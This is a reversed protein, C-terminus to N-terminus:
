EGESEGHPITIEVCLGGLPSQSISLGAREDFYIQMRKHINRLATTQGVKSGQEILARIPELASRDLDGSNEVRIVLEEGNERFSVSLIGATDTPVKEFVYQFANELLPQLILRPVPTHTWRVPLEAFEISVRNKFRFSQISAYNRAHAVEEALTKEDEGDRTIYEYFKGLHECFVVSNEYDRMKIMRYLLYYSNYMFHPNIQAQLHKLQAHSILLQQKLDKEILFDIQGVMENFSDYLEAFYTQEHHIIRYKFNGSRVQEFADELLLKLPHYVRRYSDLFGSLVILAILAIFLLLLTLGIGILVQNSNDVYLWLLRTGLVESESRIVDFKKDALKVHQGSIAEDIPLTYGEHGSAVIFQREGGTLVIMDEDTLLANKLQEEIARKDLEVILVCDLSPNDQANTVAELVILRNHYTMLTSANPFLVQEMEMWAKPEMDNIEESGIVKGISKFYVGADSVLRSSNKLSKMQDMMSHIMQYRLFYPSSSYLYRLNDVSEDMLVGYQIRKITEIESEIDRHVFKLREVQKNYIIESYYRQSRLFLAVGFLIAIILISAIVLLFRKYLMNFVLNNKKHPKRNM